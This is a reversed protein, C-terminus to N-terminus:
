GTKIGAPIVQNRCGPQNRCLGLAWWLSPGAAPIDGFLLVATNLVKHGVARWGGSLRSRLFHWHDCLTRCRAM